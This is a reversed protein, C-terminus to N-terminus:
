RSAEQCCHPVSVVIATVYGKDAILTQGPRNDLLAPEAELMARSTDREDTKPHALAFTM